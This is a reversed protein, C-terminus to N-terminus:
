RSDNSREVLVWGWPRCDPQGVTQPIIQGDPTLWKFDILAPAAYHKVDVVLFITGGPANDEPTDGAYFILDGAQLDSYSFNAVTM